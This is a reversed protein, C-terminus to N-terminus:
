LINLTIQTIPTPTPSDEAVHVDIRATSLGEALRLKLQQMLASGIAEEGKTLEIPEIRELETEDIIRMSEGIKVILVDESAEISIM